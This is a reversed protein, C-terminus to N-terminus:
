GKRADPQAGSVVIHLAETLLRRLREPGVESRPQGAPQTAPITGALADAHLRRLEQGPVAGLEEGLLHDAEHYTALAEAHRGEHCLARMLLAWFRERLPHEVVLSRLEDVLDGASGLLLDLEVRQAVARCRLEVLHPIDTRALATSPVDSLPAGRWLALAQRLGTRAAALNDAARHRGASAALEVFRDLDLQDRDLRIAYGESRTEILRGAAGLERRLRMVYTQVTRRAGAPPSEPWLRDILEEVHVPRNARLLLSALLIRHKRPGIPRIEGDVVVRLPGLIGFDLM